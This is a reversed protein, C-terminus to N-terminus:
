QKGRKKIFLKYGDYTNLLSTIMYGRLKRFDQFIDDTQGKQITLSVVSNLWPVKKTAMLTRYEHVFQHMVPNHVEYLSSDNTKENILRLKM